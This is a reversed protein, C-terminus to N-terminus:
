VGEGSMAQRETRSKPDYDVVALPEPRSRWDGRGREGHPVRSRGTARADGDGERREGDDRGDSQNSAGRGLDTGGVKVSALRATRASRFCPRHAAVEPQVVTGPGFLSAVRGVFQSLRKRLEDNRDVIFRM